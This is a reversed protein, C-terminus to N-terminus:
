TRTGTVARSWDRCPFVFILPGDWGYFNSRCCASRRNMRVTLIQTPEKISPIHRLAGNRNTKFPRLLILTVTQVYPSGGLSFLIFIKLELFCFPKEKAKELVIFCGM